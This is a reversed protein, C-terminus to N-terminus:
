QVVVIEDIDAVQKGDVAWVGMGFGSYKMPAFRIELAQMNDVLFELKQFTSKIELEHDKIKKNVKVQTQRFGVLRNDVYRKYIATEMTLIFMDYNYDDMYNLIMCIGREDDNIKTNICKAKISYNKSPDIPLYCTSMMPEATKASLHLVGEKIIAEGRKGVFENWGLKNSEFDETFSQAFMNLSICAFM